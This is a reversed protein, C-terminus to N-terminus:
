APGGKMQGCPTAEGVKRMLKEFSSYLPLDGACLYFPVVGRDLARLYSSSCTLTKTNYTQHNDNFGETAINHQRKKASFTFGNPGFVM